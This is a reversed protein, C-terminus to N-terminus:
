KSSVQYDTLELESLCKRVSKINVDRGELQDSIDKITWKQVGSKMLSYYVVSVVFQKRRAYRQRNNKKEKKGQKKFERKGEKQELQMKFAKNFLSKSRSEVPLNRGCGDLLYFMVTEIDRLGLYLFELDDKDYKSTKTTLRPGIDMNYAAGVRSRSKTSSDESFIRYEAEDSIIRSSVVRGCDKCFIEGRRSDTGLNNSLCEPNACRNFDNILNTSM